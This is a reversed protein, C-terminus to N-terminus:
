GGIVSGYWRLYDEVYAKWYAANHKGDQVLWQHDVGVQKLAAEILAADSYYMDDKGIDIRIAPPGHPAAEVLLRIRSTSMQLNPLSHAGVAAFLDPYQLGLRLAWTAGRSIGGIARCSRATCTHYSADVWPILDNVVATGFSSTRVDELFYDEQPMVLLFPAVEESAMLRNATEVAGFSEWASADMSQGHLLYVVPYGAARQGDYCPPLYVRVVMERQLAESPISRQEVQGPLCQAATPTLTAAEPPQVTLTGASVPTQTPQAPIPSAATARAGATACPTNAVCIGSEGAQTGTTEGAQTGTVEGAVRAPSKESLPAARGRMRLPAPKWRLPSARM